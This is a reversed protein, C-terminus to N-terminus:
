LELKPTGTFRVGNQHYLVAEGDSLKRIHDAHRDPVEPSVGGGTPKEPVTKAMAFPVINKSIRKLRLCSRPDPRLPNNARRAQSPISVRMAFNAVAYELNSPKKRANLGESSVFLYCFGLIM